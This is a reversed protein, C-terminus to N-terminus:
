ERRLAKERVAPDRKVFCLLGRAKPPIELYSDGVTSKAVGYKETITRQSHGNQFEREIEM